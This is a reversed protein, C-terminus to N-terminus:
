ESYNIYYKINKLGFKIGSSGNSWNGCSLYMKTGSLRSNDITAVTGTRALTGDIWMKWNGSGDIYQKIHHWTRLAIYNVNTPNTNGNYFNFVPGYNSGYGINSQHAIVYYNTNTSSVPYLDMERLMNKPTFPSSFPLNLGTVIATYSDSTSTQTFLYGQATDDWLYNHSLVSGGSVHDTLDGQTLPMDLVLVGGSPMKKKYGLRM